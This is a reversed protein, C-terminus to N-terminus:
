HHQQLHIAIGPISQILTIFQAGQDPSLSQKPIIIASLSNEYILFWHKLEQVKFIKAWQLETYFSEGKMRIQTDTFEIELPERLHNGSHYNKWITSYIVLPQVITILALTTYQYFQPKPVPLLSSYYGIIWVLMALAVCLIVKMMVKRYTLTFLLKAYQQFSVRTKIKM